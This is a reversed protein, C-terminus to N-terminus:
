RGGELFSTWGGTLALSEIALGQSAFLAQIEAFDAELKREDSDRVQSAKVLGARFGAEAQAQADAAAKRSVRTAELTEKMGQIRVTITAYAAMLRAEMERKRALLDYESQKAVTVKRVRSGADLIDWKAKLGLFSQPDPAGGYLTARYGVEASVTPFFAADELKANGKQVELASSLAELATSRFPLAPTAPFSPLGLGREPISKGYRSSFELRLREAETRARVDEVSAKQLRALAETEELGSALGARRRDRLSVLRAEANARYVGTVLASQIAVEAQLWDRAKSLTSSEQEALRVLPASEMLQSALRLGDLAQLNFLPIQWGVSLVNQAKPIVISSVEVGQMGQPSAVPITFSQTLGPRSWERGVEIRAAGVLALRSATRAGVAAAEAAEINAREPANEPVDKLLSVVTSMDALPVAAQSPTSHLAGSLTAAAFLAVFSVRRRSLLGFIAPVVVFSLLTSSVVGGIIAIAMPSRFESGGGRLLATPIMGFIMAISTMLIPRSREKVSERVAAEIALFKEKQGIADVLLIGNKAALGILLILGILAGLALKEGVLFLAFFGGIMALPLSLLIIFPRLLSEFQAALIVFIFFLSGAIALTFSEVMEQFVEKEGAVEATFPPKVEQVLRELDALVEGFARTHDPAGWITIKRSRKERDIALARMSPVTSSVNALPLPGRLSPVLLDNWLTELTRDAPRFRVFFPVNDAGVNGTELGTLALRGSLEVAQPQSGAFGLDEPKLTVDFGEGFADNELRASGVGPLARVAELLRRAEPLLAQLDEGYLFVALPAEGGIGEIPPPDMVLWEGALGKLAARAKAKLTLLGEERETKSNFVFRLETLREDLASGVTAYVEQLGELGELRKVVDAAVQENAERTNGAPTKVNVLFQGRDEFALFDAGRSLALVVSGVLLALAAFLVAVPHRFSWAGMSAIRADTSALFQRWADWFRGQLPKPHGAFKASLMPDLTFAVWLSLAVSVCITIGFQKFFQGVLGDMAGVPLFVAIVALTTALVASAVRDTGRVAAEKGSLGNEMEVYIAERVVVADDILLGIALALALLSMMNLSFGMALMFIFSGAISVPLATASILASKVDTLFLFIILIAFAGGVFLAIWVEHANEQIFESQDLIPFIKVGGEGIRAFDTGRLVEKARAVVEVTNADAKKTVVLGLGRKGNVFVSPASADRVRRVAGLEGLRVGRGDRLTVVENEWHKPDSPLIGRAVTMVRAENQVEGWPISAMRQSLQEFVDLPAVRLSALKAAEFQLEIREEGLGVVSAEGVGELRQLARVLGADLSAKTKEADGGSEIGFILVPTAGVDIRRVVPERVGAPFHGKAISVKERASEIADRENASMRFGLIIQVGSPRVFSILRTLGAIGALEKELPKVVSAEVQEPSAGPYPIDIAVFPFSVDPYLSVPMRFVAFLGLVFLAVSIIGATVPRNVSFRALNLM